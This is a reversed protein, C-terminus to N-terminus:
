QIVLWCMLMGCKGMFNLRIMQYILKTIVIYM